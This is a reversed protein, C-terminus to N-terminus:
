EEGAEVRDREGVIVGVAREIRGILEDM